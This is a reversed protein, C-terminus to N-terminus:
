QASGPCQISYSMQCANVDASPLFITQKLSGIVIGKFVKSIVTILVHIYYQM